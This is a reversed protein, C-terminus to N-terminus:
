CLADDIDAAVTDYADDDDAGEDGYHMMMMLLLMLPHVMALRLLSMVTAMALTAMIMSSMMMMHAGAM